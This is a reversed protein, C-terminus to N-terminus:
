DSFAVQGHGAGLPRPEQTASFLERFCPHSHATGALTLPAPSPHVPGPLLMRTPMLAKWVAGQGVWGFGDEAYCSGHDEGLAWRSIGKGKQTVM